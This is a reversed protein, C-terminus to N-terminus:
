HLFFAPGLPVDYKKIFVLLFRSLPLSLSLSLLFSLHTYKKDRIECKMISGPEQWGM